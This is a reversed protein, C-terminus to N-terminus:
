GAETARALTRLAEPVDADQGDEHRLRDLEAALWELSERESTGLVFPSGDLTISRRDPDVRVDRVHAQATGRGVSVVELLRGRLRFVASSRWTELRIGAWAGLPATLMPPALLGNGLANVVSPDSWKISLAFLLILLVPILAVGFVFGVFLGIMMTAPNPALDVAWTFGDHTPRLAAPGPNAPRPSLM